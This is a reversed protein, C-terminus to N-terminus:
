KDLRPKVLDELAEIINTIRLELTEIRKEIADLQMAPNPFFIKRSDESMSEIYMEEEMITRELHIKEKMKFRLGTLGYKAQTYVWGSQTVIQPGNM